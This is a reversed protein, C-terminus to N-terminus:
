VTNCLINSKGTDMLKAISLLNYSFGPVYLVDCLQKKKTQSNPLILQVDVVGRGTAELRHGDGLIVSQARKLSNFEIFM